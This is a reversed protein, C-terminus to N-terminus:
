TPTLFNDFSLYHKNGVNLKTIGYKSAIKQIMRVGMGGNETPSREAELFSLDQLSDCTDTVTVHLDMDSVGLAISFHCPPQTCTEHRVINQLLEGIAIEFDILQQQRIRGGRGLAQVVETRAVSICNVECPYKGQFLLKQTM